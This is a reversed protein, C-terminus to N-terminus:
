ATQRDSTLYIGNCFKVREQEISQARREESGARRERSMSEEWTGQARLGSGNAGSGARRERGRAL